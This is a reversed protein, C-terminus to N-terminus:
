DKRIKNLEDGAVNLEVAEDRTVFPDIAWDLTPM